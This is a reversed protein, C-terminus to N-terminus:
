RSNKRKLKDNNLMWLEQSYESYVDTKAYGKKIKDARINKYDEQRNKYNSKSIYDLWKQQDFITNYRKEQGIVRYYATIYISDDIYGSCDKNIRFINYYQNIETKPNSYKAFSLVLNEFNDINTGDFENPLPYAVLTDYKFVYHLWMLTDIDRNSALIFPDKLLRIENPKIGKLKNIFNKEFSKILEEMEFYGLDSEWKPTENEKGAAILVIESHGGISFGFKEKTTPIKIYVWGNDEIVTDYYEPNNVLFNDVISVIEENSNNFIFEKIKGHTGAGIFCSNLFTILILLTMIIPTRPM